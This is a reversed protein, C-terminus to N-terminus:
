VLSVDFPLMTRSPTGPKLLSATLALRKRM